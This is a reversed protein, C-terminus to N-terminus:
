TLQNRLPGRMASSVDRRMGPTATHHAAEREREDVVRLERSEFSTATSAAPRPSQSRCVSANRILHASLPFRTRPHTRGGVQTFSDVQDWGFSKTLEKTSVPTDQFQMQSYLLRASTRLLISHLSDAGARHAHLRVM